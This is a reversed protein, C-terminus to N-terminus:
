FVRSGSSAGRYRPLEFSGADRVKAMFLPNCRSYVTKGKGRLRELYFRRSERSSWIGREAEFAEAESSVYLIFDQPWQYRTDFYSHGRVILSLNVNVGASEVIGLLRGMNGRAHDPSVWLMPEPRSLMGALFAKAPKGHYLNKEKHSDSLEPTDVYLLRIREKKGSIKRNRDLDADFTDGDIVKILMGKLLIADWGAPM